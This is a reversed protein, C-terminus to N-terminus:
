YRNRPVIRAKSAETALEALREQMDAAMGIVASNTISRLEDFVAELDDDPGVQDTMGFSFWHAEGGDVKLPSTTKAMVTRGTRQFTFGADNVPEGADNAMEEEMQAALLEASIAPNRRGRKPAGPAPGETM